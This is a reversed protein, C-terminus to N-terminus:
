RVLMMKKTSVNNGQTLRYFYVGSAVFDGTKNRGNWKVEHTGASHFRNDILTAIVEGSINYVNLSVNDNRDVRYKINTEPNFPNPYNQSLHFTQPNAPNSDELATPEVEPIYWAAASDNVAGTRASVAEYQLKNDALFTVTGMLDPDSWVVDAHGSSWQIMAGRELNDNDAVNIACGFINGVAPDLFQAQAIRNVYALPIRWEVAYTGEPVVINEYDRAIDVWNEPAWVENDENVLAADTNINDVGAQEQAADEDLASMTTQLTGGPSAVTVDPDYKVEIVDNEWRTVNSVRVIDDKVEVYYYFYTDDWASWFLASLDDDDTAPDDFPTEVLQARSPLFLFGDDPGTLTDYFADKEADITILQGFSYQAIILVLLLFKKM